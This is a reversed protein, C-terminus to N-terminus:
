WSCISTIMHEEESGSTRTSAIIIARVTRMLYRCVANGWETSVSTPLKALKSQLSHLFSMFDQRWLLSQHFSWKIHYSLEVAVGFKATLWSYFVITKERKRNGKEYLCVFMKAMGSAKGVGDRNWPSKKNNNIVLRCVGTEKSNSRVPCQCTFPSNGNPFTTDNTNTM